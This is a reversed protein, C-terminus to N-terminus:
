LLSFSACYQTMVAGNEKMYFVGLNYIWFRGNKVGKREIRPKLWQLKVGIVTACREWGIHM